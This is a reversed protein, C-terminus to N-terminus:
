LIFDNGCFMMRCWAEGSAKRIAQCVQMEVNANRDEKAMEVAFEAPITLTIDFIGENM